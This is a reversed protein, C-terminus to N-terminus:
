VDETIIFEPADAYDAFAAVVTQFAETSIDAVFPVMATIDIVEIYDYSPKADSGFRGTARHLTFKDVSALANVGPIDTRRAWGEYDKASVGEKLNFLVIIRM